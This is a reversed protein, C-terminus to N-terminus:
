ATTKKGRTALISELYPWPREEGTNDVRERGKNSIENIIHLDNDAMAAWAIRHLIAIM